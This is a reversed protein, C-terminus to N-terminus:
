GRRRDFVVEEGDDDVSWSAPYELAIGWKTSEFTKWSGPAQRVGVVISRQRDPSDVHVMRDIHALGAARMWASAGAVVIIGAIVKAARRRM